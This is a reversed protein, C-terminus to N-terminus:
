RLTVDQDRFQRFSSMFFWFVVGNFLGVFLTQWWNFSEADWGPLSMGFYVLPFLLTMGVGAGIAQRGRVLKRM